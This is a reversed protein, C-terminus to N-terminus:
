QVTDQGGMARGDDARATTEPQLALAVADEPLLAHGGDCAARYAGEGLHEILRAHTTDRARLEHAAPPAGIATRWSAAAELLTAARVPEERAAAVHALGEVRAIMGRANGIQHCLRLSERYLAGAREAEGRLLALEALNLLSRAEGQRDQLARHTSLAEEFLATAEAPEGRTGHLIGLNDLSDAIAALDGLEREIQLCREFLAAARPLDAQRWALLGMNNLTAATGPCDGLRDMLDLCERYLAVAGADDGQAGRVLGLSNLARALGLPDDLSRFRGVAEQLLTAAGALDGAFHALSGAQALGHARLGASAEAVALGRALWSRGEALAGRVQWFPALLTALKLGDALPHAPDLGRQLAARLNGQESALRALWERQEPGRLHAQAERALALYHGLHREHLAALEAPRELLQERGYQRLLEHLLYRGHEDRRLFARDVLAALLFRSAGAVAAAADGTCGGSFASLGRLVQQEAAGLEGWFAALAGRLRDHGAPSASRSRRGTHM